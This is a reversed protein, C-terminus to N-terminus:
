ARHEGEIFESKLDFGHALPGSGAGLDLGAALAGSLYAKAREVARDLTM